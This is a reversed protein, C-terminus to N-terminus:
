SYPKQDLPSCRFCPRVHSQLNRMQSDPAQPAVATYLKQTLPPHKCANHDLPCCRFCPRVHSQLNRMQPDPAQPAVATYPKQTLPPHKCADHDLPSCPFCPQVHSQLNRMGPNQYLVRRLQPFAQHCAGIWTDDPQLITKSFRPLFSRTLAETWRNKSQSM